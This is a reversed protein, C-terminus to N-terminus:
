SDGDRVGLLNNLLLSGFLEYSELMAFEDQPHHAPIPNNSCL